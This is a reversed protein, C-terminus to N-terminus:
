EAGSTRTGFKRPSVPDKRWVAFARVTEREFRWVQGSFDMIAADKGAGLLLRLVKGHAEGSCGYGPWLPFSIWDEDVWDTWRYEVLFGVMIKMVSSNHALHPSGM